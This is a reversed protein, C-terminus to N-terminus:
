KSAASAAGDGGTAAPTDGKPPTADAGTGKGGALGGIATSGDSPGTSSAAHDEAAPKVGSIGGGSAAPEASASAAAAPAEATTRDCAMLSSVFVGAVMWSTM